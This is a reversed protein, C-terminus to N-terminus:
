KEAEERKVRGELRMGWRENVFDSVGVRIGKISVEV